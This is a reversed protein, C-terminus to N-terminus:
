WSSNVAVLLPTTVSALLEQSLGAVGYREFNKNENSLFSERGRWISFRSAALWESSSPRHPLAFMQAIELTEAARRGLYFRM